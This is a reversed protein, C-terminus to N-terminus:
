ATDGTDGGQDNRNMSKCFSIIRSQEPICGLQYEKGKVGATSCLLSKYLSVALPIMELPEYGREFLLKAITGPITFTVHTHKLETNMIHSLNLSWSFLKKRSCTLCLRSKCSHPWSSRLTSASLIDSCADVLPAILMTGCDPSTMFGESKNSAWADRVFIDRFGTKSNVVPQSSGSRTKRRKLWNETINKMPIQMFKKFNSGTNYGYLNTCVGDNYDPYINQNQIHKKM